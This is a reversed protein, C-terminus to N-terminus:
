FALLTTYFLRDSVKSVLINIESEPQTDGTIYSEVINDPSANFHLTYRYSHKVPKNHITTNYGQNQWTLSVALSKDLSETNQALFVAGNKVANNRFFYPINKSPMVTNYMLYRFKSEQIWKDVSDDGQIIVQRPHNTFDTIDVYYHTIVKQNHYNVLSKYNRVTYLKLVYLLRKLMEDSTVILKGDNMLKSTTSFTKPVIEYKYDPIVTINEKVFNKVLKDTVKEDGSSNIYKSFLWFM